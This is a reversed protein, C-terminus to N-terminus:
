RWYSAFWRYLRTYWPTLQERILELEVLIENNQNKVRVIEAYIDLLPKRSDSAQPYISKEIWDPIDVRVTPMGITPQDTVTLIPPLTDLPM